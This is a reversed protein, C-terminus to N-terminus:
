NVIQSKLRWSSDNIFSGHQVIPPETYFASIDSPEFNKEMFYINLSWDIPPYLKPDWREQTFNLFDKSFARNVLYAVATNTFPRLQTFFIENIKRGLLKQCKLKELTFGSGLNVFVYPKNLYELFNILKNLFFDVDDILFDSELIVAYSVGKSFFAQQLAILHKQTVASEIQSTRIKSKLKKSFVNGIQHKIYSLKNTLKKENNLPDIYKRWFFESMMQNWEKQFFEKPTLKDLEQRHVLTVTFGKSNLRNKLNFVNEMRDSEFNHILCFSLM